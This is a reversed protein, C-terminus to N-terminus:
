QKVLHLTLALGRKNSNSFSTSVSAHDPSRSASPYIPQCEPHKKNLEMVKLTVRALFADADVIILNSRSEFHEWVERQLKDKPHTYQTVLSFFKKNM